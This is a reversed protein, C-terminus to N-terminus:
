HSRRRNGRVALLGMGAMLATMLLMGWESLTPVSAIAPAVALAVARSTGAGASGDGDAGGTVTPGTTSVSTPTGSVSCTVAAGQAIVDGAAWPGAPNDITCAGLTVGPPLGTVGCRTGSTADVVGVNRCIFRGSYPVGVRASTPLGSTDISIVPGAVSASKRSGNNSAVSDNSANTLVEIQTTEGATTPTGTLPCVVTKGAGVASGQSWNAGDLKCQGVVVGTPLGTATCISRVASTASNANNVCSFSAGAPVPQNLAFTAPVNSTDPTMDAQLATKVPSGLQPTGGNGAITYSANNVSEAASGAPIRVKMTFSGTENAGMTPINCVIAANSGVAPPTCQAANAGGLSDFTTAIRDSGVPMPLNLSVGTAPSGSVNQYTYTYELLTSGDAETHTKVLDPGTAAVWLGTEPQLKTSVLDLYLHGAHGGDACGSAVAIVEIQAGDALDAQAVPIDFTQWDTYRYSGVGSHWTFGPENSYNFTSFLTKGTSVNRVEVFFYAQREAAHSGDQLVPAAAFRVHVLGDPDADTAYNVTATQRIGNARVSDGGQNLRAAAAGWHPFKINNNTNADQLSDHGGRVVEHLNGGGGPSLGLDSFTKPTVFVGGVRPISPNTFTEKTWGNFDTADEFGGNVFGAQAATTLLLGGCAALVARRCQRAVWARTSKHLEM